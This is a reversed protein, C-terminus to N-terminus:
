LNPTLTPPAHNRNRVIAFVGELIGLTEQKSDHNGGIIWPFAHLAINGLISWWFAVRSMGLARNESVWRYTSQTNIRVGERISARAAPTVHHICTAKPEVALKHKRSLRFSFDYDEGLSPGELRGDFMAESFAQVRYSMSCGSLWDAPDSAQTGPYQGPM